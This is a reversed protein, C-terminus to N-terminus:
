GISSMESQEDPKPYKDGPDTEVPKPLNAVFAESDEKNDIDLGDVGKYRLCVKYPEFTPQM